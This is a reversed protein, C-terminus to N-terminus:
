ARQVRLFRLVDGLMLEPADDAHCHSAVKKEGLGVNFANGVVGIGTKVRTDMPQSSNMICYEIGAVAAKAWAM